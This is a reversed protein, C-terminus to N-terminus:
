YRRPCVEARESAIQAQADARIQQSGHPPRPGEDIDKSRTHTHTHTNPHKSIAAGAEAARSNRVCSSVHRLRQLSDKRGGDSIIPGEYVCSLQQAKIGAIEGEKAPSARRSRSSNAARRQAAAVSPSISNEESTNFAGQLCPKRRGAETVTTGRRKHGHSMVLKRMQVRECARSLLM